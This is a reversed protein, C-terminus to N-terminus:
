IFQFVFFFITYLYRLFFSFFVFVFSCENTKTKDECCSCRAALQRLPAMYIQFSIWNIFLMYGVEQSYKFTCVLHLHRTALFLKWLSIVKVVLYRAPTLVCYIYRWNNNNIQFFYWFILIHLWVQQQLNVSISLFSYSKYCSWFYIYRCLLKTKKTIRCDLRFLIWFM